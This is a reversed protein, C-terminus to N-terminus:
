LSFEKETILNQDATASEYRVVGAGPDAVMYFGGSLVYLPEITVTDGKRDVRFVMNSARLAGIPDADNGLRVGSARMREAVAVWLRRQNGRLWKDFAREAKASSFTAPWGRLAADVLAPVADGSTPKVSKRSTKLDEKLAALSAASIDRGKLFEQPDLPTYIPTATTWSLTEKGPGPLLSLRNWASQSARASSLESRLRESVEDFERVEATPLGNKFERLAGSLLDHERLARELGSIAASIAQGDGSDRYNVKVRTEHLKYGSVIRTFGDTVRSLQQLREIEAIAARTGIAAQAAGDLSVTRSFEAPFAFFKVPLEIKLPKLQGGQAESLVPAFALDEAGYEHWLLIARDAQKAASYAAAGRQGLEEIRTQVIDTAFGHRLVQGTCEKRKALDALQRDLRALDGRAVPTSASLHGVGFSSWRDKLAISNNATHLAGSILRCCPGEAHGVVYIDSVETPNGITTITIPRQNVDAVAAEGTIDNLALMVRLLDSSQTPADVSVSPIIPQHIMPPPDVSADGVTPEALAGSHMAMASPSARCGFVGTLIFAAAIATALRPTSSPRRERRIPTSPMSM